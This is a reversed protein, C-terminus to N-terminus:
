QEYWEDKLKSELEKNEKLTGFTSEILKKARKKKEINELLNKIQEATLSTKLKINENDSTEIIVRGM